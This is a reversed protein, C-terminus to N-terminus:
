SVIWMSPIGFKPSRSMTPRQHNLSIRAGRHEIDNAEETPTARRPTELTNKGGHLGLRLYLVTDTSFARRSYPVGRFRCSVPHHGAELQALTRTTAM